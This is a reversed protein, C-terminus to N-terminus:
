DEMRNPNYAGEIRNIAANVSIGSEKIQAMIMNELGPRNSSNSAMSCVHPHELKDCQELALDIIEKLKKQQEDDM